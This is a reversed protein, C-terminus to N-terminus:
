VNPHISNNELLAEMLIIDTHFYRDKEYFPIEQRIRKCTQLLKPSTKLPARFDIGQAAALMEVAILFRTNKIMEGLRRDAFTAM